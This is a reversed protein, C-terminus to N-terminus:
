VPLINTSAARLIITQNKAVGEFEVKNTANQWRGVAFAASFSLVLGTVAAALAPWFFAMRSAVPVPREGARNKNSQERERVTMLSMEEM